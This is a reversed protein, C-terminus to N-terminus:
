CPMEGVLKGLSQMQTTEPYNKGTHKKEKQMSPDIESMKNGTWSVKKRKACWKKFKEKLDIKSM